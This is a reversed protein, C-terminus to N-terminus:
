KRAKIWELMEEFVQRREPENLLEHYLGPYVKINKDSSAAKEVFQISKDPDVLLDAGAQLVFIPQNITGADAIALNMARQLQTFWRVSVRSEILPDVSYSEVIEPSRSVSSSEIGNPMRFTPALRDLVAAVRQKWQPVTLKLALCPSSLLAGRLPLSAADSEQLLRAVILGGMSHGLVFIPVDRYRKQAEALWQKVTRVYHAFDDIHGRRGGSRGLGPLDGGVVAVGQEVFWQVVHEYRGIHEGAGHVIVIVAQVESDPEWNQSHITEM